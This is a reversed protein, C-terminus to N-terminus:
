KTLYVDVITAIKNDCLAERIKFFIDSVKLSFHVKALIIM